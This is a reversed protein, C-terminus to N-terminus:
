GRHLSFRSSGNASKTMWCRGGSTGTTRYSVGNKWFRDRSCSLHRGRFWGHQAGVSKALSPSM